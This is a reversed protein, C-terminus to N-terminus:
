RGLTLMVNRYLIESREATLCIRGPARECGAAGQHVLLKVPGDAPAVMASLLVLVMRM